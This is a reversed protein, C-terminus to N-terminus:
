LAGVNLYSYSRQVQGNLYATNGNTFFIGRVEFKLSSSVKINSWEFSLM